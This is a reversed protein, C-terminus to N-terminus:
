RLCNFSEHRHDNLGDRRLLNMVCDCLNVSAHDAIERDDVAGLRTDPSGM